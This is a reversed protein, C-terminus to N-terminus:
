DLKAYCFMFNHAGQKNTDQHSVSYKHYEDSIGCFVNKVNFFQIFSQFNCILNQVHAMFM